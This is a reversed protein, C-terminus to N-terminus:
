LTVLEDPPRDAVEHSLPRSEHRGELPLRRHRSAAKSAMGAEHRRVAAVHPNLIRGSRLNYRPVALSQKDLQVAGSPAPAEATRHEAAVRALWKRRPFSFDHAQHCKAHSSSLDGGFQLYRM